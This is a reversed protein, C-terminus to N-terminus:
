PSTTLDVLSGLYTLDTLYVEVREPRWEVYKLLTRGEAAMRPVERIDVGTILPHSAPLVVVKIEGRRRCPEEYLARCLKARPTYIKVVAPEKTVYGIEDQIVVAPHTHGMVIVDAAELDTKVPKVHGHTLLTKGLLVGRSPGVEAGDVGIAVEQLMSDHNGPILLLPVRKAVEKLFTKVEEVSERPVPLEHKIDGLIAISTVNYIDALEIISNVLKQTQSVVNVGRERRLEVEYGVHTDALLLIKERRRNLVLGRM